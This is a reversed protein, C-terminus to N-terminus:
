NKLLVLASGCLVMITITVVVILFLFVPGIFVPLLALWWSCNILGAAKLVVLLLTLLGLFGIGNKNM